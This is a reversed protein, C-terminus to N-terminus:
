AERIVEATPLGIARAVSRSVEWFMDNKRRYDEGLKKYEIIAPHEKREISLESGWTWGQFAKMKVWNDHFEEKSMGALSNVCSNLLAAQDQQSLEGWMPPVIHGCHSSYSRVAEHTAKAVLIMDLVHKHSHAM